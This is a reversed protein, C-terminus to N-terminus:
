VVEALTRLKHSLVQETINKAPAFPKGLLRVTSTRDPFDFTVKNQRKQPKEQEDIRITNKFVLLNAAFTQAVTASLIYCEERKLVQYPDVLVACM